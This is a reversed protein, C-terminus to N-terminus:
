NAKKYMDLTMTTNGFGENSQCFLLVLQSIELYVANLNVRQSVTHTPRFITRTCPMRAPHIRLHLLSIKKLNITSRTTRLLWAANVVNSEWNWPTKLSPFINKRARVPMALRCNFDPYVATTYSFSFFRTVTCCRPSPTPALPTPAPAPGPAPGVKSGSIIKSNPSSGSATSLLYCVHHNTKDTDIDYIYATCKEKSQCQNCCEEVSNVAAEFIINKKTFETGTNQSCPDAGTAIALLTALFSKM